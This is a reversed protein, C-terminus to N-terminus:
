SLLEQSDIIATSLAGITVRKAMAQLRLFHYAEDEAMGRDKMLIAKAREVARMTRLNDDLKDIRANLRREYGFHERAMMLSVEVGSDTVPSHLVSHPASNRLLTLNVTGKQPLIVILAASAMGPLWPLRQPLDRLM